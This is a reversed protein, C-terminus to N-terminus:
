RVASRRWRPRRCPRPRRRAAGSAGDPELDAADDLLYRVELGHGDRHDQRDHPQLEAVLDGGAAHRQDGRGACRDRGLDELARQLVVLDARDGDGGADHDASGAPHGGRTPARQQDTPRRVTSASRATSPSSRARAERWPSASRTARRGDGPGDRDDMVLRRQGPVAGRQRHGRTEGSRQLPQAGDNYGRLKDLRHATRDADRGSRPAPPWRPPSTPRPLHLQGPHRARGAGAGRQTTLMVVGAKAVTYIHPGIGAAVGCISATSIISGSGQGIMIPSAHKVGLFVSESLVDMTLDYEDVPREGGGGGGGGGGRARVRVLAPTTTSCTWAAGNRRRTEHIVGEVDEEKAVNVRRFDAADGLEDALKAAVDDQLDAIMVKAGEAAFLRVTAAGIGSAGGTVLAVKGDFGGM